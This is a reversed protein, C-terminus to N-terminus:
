QQTPRASGGQPNKWQKVGKHGLGVGAVFGGLWELSEVLKPVWDPQTPGMWIEALKELVLASILMGAGITTKRTDLKEWMTKM